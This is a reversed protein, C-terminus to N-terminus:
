SCIKEVILIHLKEQLIVRKFGFYGLDFLRLAESTASTTKHVSRRGQSYLVDWQSNMFLTCDLSSFGFYIHTKLNKALGALLFLWVVAFDM